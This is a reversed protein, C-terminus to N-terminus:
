PALSARGAALRPRRHRAGGRAADSSCGGRGAVSTSRSSGRRPLPFCTTTSGTASTPSRARRRVRRARRHARLLASGAEQRGPERVVLHRRGAAGAERAWREIAAPQNGVIGVRLGLARMAELCAIADPYLDDSSTPSTTPGRRDAARDRSPALARQAGRRARDHRRAGGLRRAAAPGLARRARAM